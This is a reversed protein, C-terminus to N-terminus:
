RCSQCTRKCGVYNTLSQKYAAEDKAVAAQARELHNPSVKRLAAVSHEYRRKDQLRAYACAFLILRIYALM